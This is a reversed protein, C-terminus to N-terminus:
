LSYVGEMHIDLPPVPLTPKSIYWVSLHLKLRQWHTLMWENMGLNVTGEVTVAKWNVVLSVKLLQSAVKHWSSHTGDAM